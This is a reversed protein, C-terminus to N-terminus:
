ISRDHTNTMQDNPLEKYTVKPSSFIFITQYIM